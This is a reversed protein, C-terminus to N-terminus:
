GSIARLRDATSRIIAVMAGPNDTLDKWTFQLITWGAEVFHNHRM